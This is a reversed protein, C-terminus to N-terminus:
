IIGFGFLGYSDYPKDLAWEYFISFARNFCYLAILSHANKGKNKLVDRLTFLRAITSTLNEILKIPGLMASM